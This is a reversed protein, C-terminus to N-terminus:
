KEISYETKYNAKNVLTDAVPCTRDIFDIFDKVKEESSDTKINIKTRIETFGIKAEPNTGMFGDPDLDGEVEIVLNQLDIGHEKAFSAAVICKCSGLASLLAECPNMGKDVGGLEAPEDLIIKHQRAVSEVTVGELLTSVSKFVEKAM